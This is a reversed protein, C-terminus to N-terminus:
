SVSCLQHDKDGRGGRRRCGRAMVRAGACWLQTRWTDAPSGSTEGGARRPYRGRDAADPQRSMESLVVASVLITARPARGEM